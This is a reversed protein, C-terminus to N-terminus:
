KSFQGYYYTNCILVLTRREFPRHELPRSSAIVYHGINEDTKEKKGQKTEGWKKEECDVKRM